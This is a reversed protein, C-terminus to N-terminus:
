FRYYVASPRAKGLIEEHRIEPENVFLGQRYALALQYGPEVDTPRSECPGDYYDPM